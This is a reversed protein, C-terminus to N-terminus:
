FRNVNKYYTTSLRSEQRPFKSAFYREKPFLENRFYQALSQDRLRIAATYELTKYIFMEDAEPPCLITDDTATIREKYNGSADKVNYKSYYPIKYYIGTALFINDLRYTGNVGTLGHNFIIQLYEIDTSDPTGVTTAQTIDFSTLGWGNLITDGRHRTTASASYYNSADTGIRVTIDTLAVSNTSPTQPDLFLRGETLFETIDLRSLSTCTLTTTGGSATVTFRLSANGSTYIQSDLSLASGDGTVAWTGGDTLSECTNVGVKSSNEESLILFPTENLYKIVTTNGYPWHVFERQTTHNFNPSHLDYPREPEMIGVFDTPLPYEKNGAYAVLDFERQCTPMKYNTYYYKRTRDLFLLWDSDSMMQSVLNAEQNMEGIATGVILSM